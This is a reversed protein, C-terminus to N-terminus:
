DKCQDVGTFYFKLQLLFTGQILAPMSELQLVQMGREISYPPPGRPQAKQLKGRYKDKWSLDKGM